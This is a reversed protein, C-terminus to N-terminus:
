WLREQEALAQLAVDRRVSRPLAGLFGSEVLVSRTLRFTM